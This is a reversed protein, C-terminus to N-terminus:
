NGSLVVEALRQAILEPDDDKSLAGTVNTCAEITGSRSNLRNTANSATAAASPNTQTLRILGAIRLAASSETAAWSGAAMDDVDRTVTAGATELSETGTLVTGAGEATMSSPVRNLM